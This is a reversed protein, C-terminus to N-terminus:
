FILLLSHEEKIDYRFVCLIRLKFYRSNRSVEGDPMHSILIKYKFEFFVLCRNLGLCM